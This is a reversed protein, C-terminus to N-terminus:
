GRATVFTVVLFSALAILLYLLGRVAIGGVKRVPAREPAAVADAQTLRITNRGHGGYLELLRDVEAACRGCLDALVLDGGLGSDWVLRRREGRARPAGCVDCVAASVAADRSPMGLSTITM